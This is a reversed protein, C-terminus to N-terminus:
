AHEGAEPAPVRAGAPPRLALFFGAAALFLVASALLAALYAGTRDHLVGYLVAGGGMGLYFFVALGGYVASFHRLGFDRACFYSLLDMEAGISAGILVVALTALPVQGPLALWLAVGAAPLAMTAAAAFEPRFRDLAWGVAIRSVFVSASLVSLLRLATPAPLGSEIMVSQFQSVFGISGASVCCVALALCWFPRTRAAQALTLGPGAGADAVRAPVRAPASRILACALLGGGLALAALLVYGSRWRGASLMPGLVVPLLMGATAIGLLALALALGRAREFRAAVARTYSIPGTVSGVVNMAIFLAYFLPLSGDMGSLLFLCLALLLAACAAVRRVGYRDLVLGAFPLVLATIPLAVFAVSGATKSWGFENELARFFLSSVPTYAGIGCGLGIAAGALERWGQRMERAASV